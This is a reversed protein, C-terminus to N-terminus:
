DALVFCGDSQSASIVAILHMIRGWTSEAADEEKSLGNLRARLWKMATDVRASAEDHSYM